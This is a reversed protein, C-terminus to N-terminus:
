KGTCGDWCYTCLDCKPLGIAKVMDDLTQYRLSDLGLDDQIWKVMASHRSSGAESYEVLTAEENQEGELARIARRAALDQESRSRSFNLFRCSHILPPCAPRMHVQAVGADRLRQITEKLQTGRVISDECFLIREGRVLEQVPILKMEAVLDRTKQDQPTFSRPWTPTYKIFPRAYPMRAENAYGIAHAIGSDPIGAVMDIEAEDARALAAGCRNRVIEVNEGEYSSPPYGYYIWLFSCIQMYDQPGSVQEYGDPTLLVIEGPRLEHIASYGLNPLACTEMTACLAGKKEGIILPTRGDLDRAVYVGEDTLLLISCSGEIQQQATIIGDGFSNEQSILTAVVETPNLENGSAALFQSKRCRFAKEVLAQINNIRGVTVIAYNGLESNVLLPQADFDSIVGIGSIGIMRPLEPEFKTRFPTNRIDHIHREIRGDQRVAMGGRQTGLHSHYDTGYFLDQTCSEKSVVGFIGGM